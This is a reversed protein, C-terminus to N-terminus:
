IAVRPLLPWPPPSLGADPLQWERLDRPSDLDFALGPRRVVQVPLGLRRAEATHLRCSDAGYQPQFAARAPLYLANTGAAARDTAIVVGHRMRGLHVLAALDSARVLPLDCSMVLLEGAGHRRAEDIADQVAGNLGAGQTEAMARCGQRRAIALVEPCHSVVLTHAPGAHELAVQLAHQLLQLNLQRRRPADLVPALRSKGHALSKFPLILWPKM